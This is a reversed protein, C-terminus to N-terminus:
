LGFLKQLQSRLWLKESFDSGSNTGTGVVNQSPRDLVNQSLVAFAISTPCDGRFKPMSLKLQFQECYPVYQPRSTVQIM